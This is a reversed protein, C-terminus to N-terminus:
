AGAAWDLVTDVLRDAARGLAAAGGPGDPTAAPEDIAFRAQRLVERGNSLTVRVRVQARSSKEGDFIQAFEDVEVRLTPGAGGLLAGGAVLRERIRADVLLPPPMVWRTQTYAQPQAANAYALRYWTQVGDLWRPASVELVGVAKLRLPRVAPPPGFDYSSVPAAAPKPGLACAGLLPLVCAALLCTRLAPRM